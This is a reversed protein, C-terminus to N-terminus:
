HWEHFDQIFCEHSNLVCYQSNVRCLFGYHLKHLLWKHNELDARVFKGNHIKIVMWLFDELYMWSFESCMVTFLYRCLFGLHLKHLLWKHNELDARVFKGNHITIEMWLFDELYMWSFESCMVTFLYRCLFGLHLRHLLWKHNELDARVFKGNCIKVVM